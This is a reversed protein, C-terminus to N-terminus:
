RLMSLTRSIWDNVFSQMIRGMKAQPEFISRAWIADFLWRSVAECDRVMEDHAEGKMPSLRKSYSSIAETLLEEPVKLRLGSASEPVSRQAPIEALLCLEPITNFCLVEGQYLWPNRLNYALAFQYADIYAKGVAEMDIVMISVRSARCKRTFYKARRLASAWSSLLSIWPSSSPAWCPHRTVSDVTPYTWQARARLGTHNPYSGDMAVVRYCIYRPSRVQFQTLIRIERDMLVPIAFYDRALSLVLDVDQASQQKSEAHFLGPLDVLTLHAQDPGELVSRKGAFQDGCVVLQPLSIYSNLEQSRLGDIIDLLEGQDKISSEIDRLAIVPM